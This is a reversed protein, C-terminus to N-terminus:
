GHIQEAKQLLEQVRQTLKRKEYNYANQNIGLRKITDSVPVQNARDNFFTKERDNLNDMVYKLKVSDWDFGTQEDAVESGSEFLDSSLGNRYDVVQKVTWGLKKALEQDTPERDLDDQLQTVAQIWLKYQGQKKESMRMNNQYRTNVRSIKRVWNFAHTSLKNGMDPDFTDIAHGAWHIAEQMLASDPLSGKQQKVQTYLLQSLNNILKTKAKAELKSGEPANNWTHWLALDKDAYSQNPNQNQAPTPSQFSPTKFELPKLQGFQQVNNTTSM